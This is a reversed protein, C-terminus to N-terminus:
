TRRELLIEVNGSILSTRGFMIDVVRGNWVVWEATRQRDNGTSLFNLADRSILTGLRWRERGEDWWGGNYSWHGVDVLVSPDGDDHQYVRLRGSQRVVTEPLAHERVIEAAVRGFAELWRRNEPDNANEVRVARRLLSCVGHKPHDWHPTWEFEEGSAREASFTVFLRQRGDSFKGTAIRKAFISKTM